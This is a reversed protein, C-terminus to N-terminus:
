NWTVKSISYRIM